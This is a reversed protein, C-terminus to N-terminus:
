GASAWGPLSRLWRETDTDSISREDLQTFLACGGPGDLVFCHVGAESQHVDALRPAALTDLASHWDDDYEYNDLLISVDAQGNVILLLLPEVGAPVRRITIAPGAELSVIRDRGFTSADSSWTQRRACSGNM